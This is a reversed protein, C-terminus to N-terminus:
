DSLEPSGLLPSRDGVGVYKCFIPCAQGEPECILEMSGLTFTAEAYRENRDERYPHLRALLEHAAMSSAFMNVSIVAPRHNEHGGIYGDKVEQEYAQPDARRKGAAAVQDMTFLKRSLLSSRDPQLYHVTGCIDRIDRKEHGQRPTDIKVGIDFYPINYHAAIQNLLFRGDITDMCGFVVDCQALERVVEPDWLNKKIRIFNTGLGIDNAADALVDVKHTGDRVHDLTSHLIRNINRDEIVDDDVAVIERAGLRVLQEITPSGTGSAGVVGFSLQGMMDITGQDFAQTHALLFRENGSTVQHHTWFHLDDGAVSIMDVYEIGSDPDFVRAIMKGNPTMVASGHLIDHEVWAYIAPLFYSDTKNDIASFALTGTPHSHVKVVSWGKCAAEELMPVIHDTKWTVKTSTRTKYGEVPVGIVRQVCLRHSRNGSRRGCLLFAVSEKVDGPYLLSKLEAHQLGTFALVTKTKM